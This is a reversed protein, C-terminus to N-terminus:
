RIKSRLYEVELRMQEVENSLRDIDSQMKVITARDFATKSVPSSKLAHRPSPLKRFSPSEERRPTVPASNTVTRLDLKPVIINEVSSTRGRKIKKMLRHAPDDKDLMFPRHDHIYVHLFDERTPISKSSPDCLFSFIKQYSPCVKKYSGPCEPLVSKSNPGHYFKTEHDADFMKVLCGRGHPCVKIQLTEM